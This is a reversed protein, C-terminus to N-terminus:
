ADSELIRAGEADPRLVFAEAHGAAEEFADRMGAAIDEESGPPGVAILGSGSGSITAAWAGARLAAELAGGAGPILPLRYPVHLEDDFGVRLDEPSARAFGRALAIARASTRVAKAHPLERPLAARADDTSIEIRPAAFAFGIEPSLDLRVFRFGGTDLRPLAAVLGGLVAPGANDPHGELVVARGLCSATDYEGRKMAAGALCLGAVRAAASSGLGRGIPIESVVHLVGRAEAGEEALAAVFADVLADGRGGGLAEVTGAREVILAREGPTFRADLYRDFALGLCDFGSGLNSTSCPVRVRAASLVPPDANRTSPPQGTASLNRPINVAFPASSAFVVRIEPSYSVYAVTSNPTPTSNGTLKQCGSLEIEVEVEFVARRM